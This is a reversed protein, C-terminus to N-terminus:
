PGRRATRIGPDAGLSWDLQVSARFQNWDITDAGRSRLHRYFALSGNFQMNPALRVSGTTSTGVVTGERVQLEHVTQFALVSASLSNFQGLQLRLGAGGDSRAAGFNIDAQYNGFATVTPTVLWSANMGARWGDSRLGGFVEADAEDDHYRRYAGRLDLTVSQGADSWALNASAEDFGSPSFAGWITWLPFYPQQTRLELTPQVRLLVPSRVRLRAENIRHGALDSEFVAEGLWGHTEISADGAIREGYLGARDTRIERQYEGALRVHGHRIMLQAGLLNSRRGPVLEEIAALADSLVSDNL